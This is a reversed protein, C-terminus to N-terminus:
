YFNSSFFQNLDKNNQEFLNNSCSFLFNTNQGQNQFSKIESWNGCIDDISAKIKIEFNNKLKCMDLLMKTETTENSYFKHGNKIELVYKINKMDFEKLKFNNIDWSIIVNQGQIEKKINNPVPIGSFYYDKYDLVDLDSNFSIDLNRKPIKFFEKTKENNINIESIYYLTEIDEVYNKKEYNEIAKSSRECFLIINKSEILFKNLEEKIKKVKEDLELKLQKEKRNLKIHKEEFSSTIENIIKKHAINIEEIEEEIRQKTIKAKKFIQDFESVSKDFSINYKKM